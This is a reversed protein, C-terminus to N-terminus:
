EGKSKLQERAGQIQQRLSIPNNIMRVHIAGAGTGHVDIMGYGFIRGIISTGVNVEEIKDLSVEETTISILGTKKVFRDSTVAVELAWGHIMLYLGYVFPLVTLVLLFYDAAGYPLGGIAVAVFPAVLISAGLWFLWHYGTLFLVTEKSGLTRRVYSMTVGLTLQM